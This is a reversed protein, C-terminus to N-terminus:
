VKRSVVKPLSGVIPSEGPNVSLSEKAPLSDDRHEGGAPRLDARVMRGQLLFERRRPTGQEGGNRGGAGRAFMTFWTRSMM